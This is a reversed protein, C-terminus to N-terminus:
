LFDRSIKDLKDCLHTPLAAGQMVHNPVATMVFKVLVTRGAFSLFKAKWRALKSILRKAIFNFRNRAAGKHNIPFGLYTGLALTESIDLIDCINEKVNLPVNPSFYIRSKEASVVQVYEKCFKNLVDKIAKAEAM